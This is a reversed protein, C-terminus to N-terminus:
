ICHHACEDPRCPLPSRERTFRSGDAQPRHHGTYIWYCKGRRGQEEIFAESHELVTREEGNKRRIKYEVTYPKHRQLASTFAEAVIRQDETPLHSFFLDNTVEVEGPQYGFIRYVEDSWFLPNAKLDEYNYIPIEWAGLHAMLEAQALIRQDRLLLTESQKIETIDRLIGNLYVPKGESNKLITIYDAVWRYEESPTQFRYVLKGKGTETAKAIDAQVSMRDDPHVRELAEPSSLANMEEVTLGLVQEVMPSMYDYRDRQLDRRYVVDLSNELVSRFREETERLAIEAQNRETIDFAMGHMRVPQGNEDVILRSFVEISREGRSAHHIRFEFQGDTGNAVTETVARVVQERDREDILAISTNSDLPIDPLVGMLDHMEPSWWAQGTRLDWEWAGGHGAQLAWTLRQASQKLKQEILKREDINRIISLNVQEGEFDAGMSSVEVWFFTGDKRCHKAEFLTGESSAEAMGPVFETRTDAAQLNALTLQLIEERPYGYAHEAAQNAELIRGDSQRVILTIDRAFNFLLHYRRMLAEAQKGETIDPSNGVHGLFEGDASFRPEAYSAIWRWAGDARRVRAEARFPKREKVARLYTEVYTPADEPHVLPQWRSGSAEEQTVGFFDRYARNVFETEGRANSMWIILPNSDALIRFREESELLAMETHKRETIDMFAGVAGAPKGNGDFLPQVNGLITRADGDNSVVDLEYDQAPIGTSAAIQMPLEESPIERGDKFNRYPQQQLAANPATKSLNAGRWMKLFEYSFRNGTMERCQPDHSVWIIAPVVDMLAELDAARAREREESARLSKETRNIETTDWM